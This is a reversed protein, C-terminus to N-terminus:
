SLIDDSTATHVANTAYWSIRDFVPKVTTVLKLLIAIGCSFVKFVSCEKICNFLEFLYETSSPHFM